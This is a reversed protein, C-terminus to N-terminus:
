EDPDADPDPEGRYEWLPVVKTEMLYSDSLRHAKAEDSVGEDNGITPKGTAAHVILWRRKSEPEKKAAPGRQATKRKSVRQVGLGLWRVM